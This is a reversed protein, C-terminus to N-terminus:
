GARAERAALVAAIDRKDYREGGSGEILLAVRGTTKVHGAWSLAEDLNTFEKFLMRDKSIPSVTETGLPGSYVKYSM